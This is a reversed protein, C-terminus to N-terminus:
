RFMWGNRIQDATRRTALPTVTSVDDWAQANLWTAPYKAFKYNEKAVEPDAAYRRVAQLIVEPDTSKTAKAWAIIARGKDRKKPYLSWFEDFRQAHAARMDREKEGIERPMQADSAVHMADPMSSANSSANRQADTREGWRADAAAKAKDAAGKVESSSRQHELFDHVRAIGDGAEHLLGHKYLVTADDACTGTLRCVLAVPVLGDTLHQASYAICGIHLIIAGQSELSAAAVKPNTLYGVDLKFYARKDAM